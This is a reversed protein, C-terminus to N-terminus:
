SILNCLVATCHEFDLYKEYKGDFNPWNWNPKVSWKTKKNNSKISKAVAFTNRYKNALVITYPLLLSWVIGKGISM